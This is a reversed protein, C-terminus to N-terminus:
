GNGQTVPGPTINPLQGPVETAGPTPPPPAATQSCGAFGGQSCNTPQTSPTVSPTPLTTTVGPVTTTTTPPISTTTTTTPCTAFGQTHGIEVEWNGHANLHELDAQVTACIPPIQVTLPTDESSTPGALGIFQGTAPVDVSLRWTCSEQHCTGTTVTVSSPGWFFQATDAGVIQSAWLGSGALGLLAAGIAVWRKM